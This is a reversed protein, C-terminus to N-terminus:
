GKLQYLGRAARKVRKDRALTQFIITEFTKSTSTYGGAKVASAIQAVSMSKDKSLVAAIADALKVKNKARKRPRRGAAKAPRGPKRGRKIVTLGGVAHGLAAIEAQVAALKKLLSKEKRQLKPLRAQHKKLQALLDELSMKVISRKAM